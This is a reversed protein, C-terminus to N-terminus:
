LSTLSGDFSYVFPCSGVPPRPPPRTDDEGLAAAIAVGAAVGAALVVVPGLAIKQIELYEISDLPIRVNRDADWVIETGELYDMYVAVTRLTTRSGNVTTVDVKKGEPIAGWDEREIKQTSVCETLVSVFLLSAFAAPASTFRRPM